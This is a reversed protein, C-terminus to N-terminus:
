EQQLKDCRAKRFLEVSIVPECEVDAFTLELDPAPCIEPYSMLYSM